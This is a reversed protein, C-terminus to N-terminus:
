APIRGIAYAHAFRHLHLGREGSLPPLLCTKLVSLTLHFQLISKDTYVVVDLFM